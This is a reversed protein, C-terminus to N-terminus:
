RILEKFKQEAKGCLDKLLDLNRDNFKRNM